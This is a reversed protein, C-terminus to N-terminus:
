IQAHRRDLDLWVFELPHMVDQKNSHTSAVNNFIACGQAVEVNNTESKLKMGAIERKKESEALASSAAAFRQMAAKFKLREESDKGSSM